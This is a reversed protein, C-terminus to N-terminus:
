SAAEQGRSERPEGSLGSPMASSVGFRPAATKWTRINDVHYNTMFVLEEALHSRRLM